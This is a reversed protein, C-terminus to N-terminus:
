AERKIRPSMGTYQKFFKHFVFHDFTPFCFRQLSLTFNMYLLNPM